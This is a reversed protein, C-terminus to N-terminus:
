LHPVESKFERITANVQNLAEKECAMDTCAVQGSEDCSCSNCGDISPVSEGAQYIQGNYTCTVRTWPFKFIPLGLQSKLSQNQFYLFIGLSSIIVLFIALVFLLKKNGADKVVEDAALEGPSLSNNPSQKELNVASM